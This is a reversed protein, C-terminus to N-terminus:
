GKEEVGQGQELIDELSMVRIFSPTGEGVFASAINFEFYERAEDLQMGDRDCLTSIVKDEDYAISYSNAVRALGMICNDFGDAKLVSMEERELEKEM